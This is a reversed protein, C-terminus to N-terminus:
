EDDDPDLVEGAANLMIGDKEVFSSCEMPPDGESAWYFKIIADEIPTEVEWGLKKLAIVLSTTENLELAVEMLDESDSLLIGLDFQPNFASGRQGYNAPNYTYEELVEDGLSALEDWDIANEEDESMITGKRTAKSKVRCAV